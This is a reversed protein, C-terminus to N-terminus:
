AVPQLMELVFARAMRPDHRTGGFTRAADAWTARAPPGDALVPDGPRGATRPRRRPASWRATCAASRASRTM